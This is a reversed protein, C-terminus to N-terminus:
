TIHSFKCGAIFSSVKLDSTYDLLNGAKTVSSPSIDANNAFGNGDARLLQNAGNFENGQQTTSAFSITLGNVSNTNITTATAMRVTIGNTSTLVARLTASALFVNQLGDLLQGRKTISSNSTDIFEPAISGSNINSGSNRTTHTAESEKSYVGFIALGVFIGFIIESKKFM